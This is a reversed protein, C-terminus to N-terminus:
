EGIQYECQMRDMNMRRFTERWRPEMSFCYVDFKDRYGMLRSTHDLTSEDPQSSLMSPYDPINEQFWQIYRGHLNPWYFAFPNFYAAGAPYSGKPRRELAQILRGSAAVPRSTSIM